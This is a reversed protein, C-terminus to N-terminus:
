VRFMHAFQLAYEFFLSQLAHCGFIPKDAYAFGTIHLGAGGTGYSRILIWNIKNVPLLGDILGELHKITLMANCSQSVVDAICFVVM